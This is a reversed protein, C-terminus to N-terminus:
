SYQTHNKNSSQIWKILLITEIILHYFFIGFVPLVISKLDKFIYYFYGFVFMKLIILGLFAFAELGKKVYGTLMCIVFSILHLVLLLVLIKDFSSGWNNMYGLAFRAVAPIASLVCFVGFYTFTKM